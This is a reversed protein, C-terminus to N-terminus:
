GFLNTYQSFVLLVVEGFKSIVTPCFNNSSNELFSVTLRFFSVYNSVLLNIVFSVM